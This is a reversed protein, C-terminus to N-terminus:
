VTVGRQKRLMTQAKRSYITNLEHDTMAFAKENPMGCVSGDFDDVEEADNTSADSRGGGKGTDVAKQENDLRKEAATKAAAKSADIKKLRRDCEKKAEEALAAKTQEFNLTAIDARSRLARAAASEIQEVDTPDDKLAEYSSVVGKVAEKLDRAGLAAEFRLEMRRVLEGEKEKSAAGDARPTAGARRANEQARRLVEKPPLGSNRIQQVADREEPTLEDDGLGEEDPEHPM